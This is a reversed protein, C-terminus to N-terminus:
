KIEIYDVDIVGDPTQRITRTRRISCGNAARITQRHNWQNRIWTIGQFIGWIILLPIAIYWAIWFMLVLFFAVITAIWILQLLPM